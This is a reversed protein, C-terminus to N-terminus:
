AELGLLLQRTDEAHDDLWAKNDALKRLIYQPVPVATLPIYGRARIAQVETVLEPNSYGFRERLTTYSWGEAAATMIRSRIRRAEIDADRDVALERRMATILAERQEIFAGIVVVGIQKSRQSKLLLPVIMAALETFGYHTLDTRKGQSTTGSRCWKEAYQQETLEILSGGPFLDWNGRVRRMLNKAPTEFVEAVDPALMIPPLDALTSIRSQVGAITPLTTDTSM